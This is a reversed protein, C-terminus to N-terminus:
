VEEMSSLCVGYGGVGLSASRADLRRLMPGFRSSAELPLRYSLEDGAESLLELHPVFESLLETIADAHADSVAKVMTLTYGLGFRAKLFLSSGCCRLRGTSMVAIRDSVVDAEDMYHTTLVLARGVKSRQMLQWMVRRASPDMGSSPEDLLVAKSSGILACGVSLKRKMGGSLARARTGLQNGLGVEAAVSSASSTADPHSAGDLARARKLDEYLELHEAVTLEGWLVDHQPCVGLLSYVASRERSISHGFVLCDGSSPPYVGSLVSLTTTKGAGNHGLLSTVHGSAMSLTLDDVALKGSAGSGYRKSLHVIEIGGRQRVEDSMPEVTDDTLHSSSSGGAGSNGGDGSDVSSGTDRHLAPAVSSGTGRHLAPAVSSGTRWWVPLLCFCPHERAGFKSPLAREFYLYLGFYLVADLAMMTLCTAFTYTSDGGGAQDGAQPSLSVGRQAYEYDALIDQTLTLTLTLSM